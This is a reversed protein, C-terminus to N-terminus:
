LSKFISDLKQELLHGKLNIGIIIGEKNILFNRPISNTKYTLAVEGMNGRLDSVTPWILTDSKITSAWSSKNEDLTVGLIQFGKKNYRRYLKLLNPNEMKCPGCWSAWFELLVYKDKFSSLAVKNNNIDLLTFDVAKDGIVLDKSKELYIKISKGWTNNQPIKSLATFMEETLHKPQDFMMFTIYFSALYFDPDTGILDLFAENRKILLSDYQYELNQLIISDNRNAYKLSNLSRLKIYWSNFTKMYESNLEQFESGSVYGNELNSKSADIKIDSNDIWISKYEKGDKTCISFQALSDTVGKFYFRNNIVLSSDSISSLTTLYIKTSDPINSTLGTITFRNSSSSCSVLFLVAFITGIKMKM